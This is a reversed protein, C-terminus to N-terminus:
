YKGVVQRAASGDSLRKHLRRAGAVDTTQATTDDRQQQPGRVFPSSDAVQGLHTDWCTFHSLGIATKTWSVEELRKNTMGHWSGCNTATALIVPGMAM